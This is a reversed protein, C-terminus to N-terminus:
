LLSFRVDWGSRLITNIIPNKVLSPTFTYDYLKGPAFNEQIGWAEGREWESVVGRFGSWGLRVGDVGAGWNVKRTSETLIAEHKREHLRVRLEYLETLGAKQFAEWWTADVYRWTFLYGRGKLQVMVPADFTNLEELQHQLEARPIAQGEGKFFFVSRVVYYFFPLFSIFILLTLSLILITVVTDSLGIRPPIEIAALLIVAWVVMFLMIELFAKGVQRFTM